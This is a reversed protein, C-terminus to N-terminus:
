CIERFNQNYENAIYIYYDQITYNTSFKDILLVKINSNLDKFHVIIIDIFNNIMEYEINNMNQLIISYIDSLLRFLKFNDLKSIDRNIENNYKLNIQLKNIYNYIKDFLDNVPFKYITNVDKLLSQILKLLVYDYEINKNNSIENVIYSFFDLYQIKININLM